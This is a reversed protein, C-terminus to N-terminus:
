DYYVKVKRKNVYLLILQIVTFVPMLILIAHIGMKASIVAGLMPSVMMSVSNVTGLIGFLAGKKRYDTAESAASTLIPEISGAIFFYISYVVVFIALAYKPILLLSI